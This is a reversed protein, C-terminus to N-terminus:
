KRRKKLLSSRSTNRIVELMSEHLKGNTALIEKGYLDVKRGSFDTVKGGAEEVLVIGASIDWPFLGLEWFGDFRGSALYALDLAAAGARRIAQAKVSFSGFLSLPLRPNERLDYPFGTALFAHGLKKERSVSIKRDNLYAGKKKGAWFIEDLMPNYIVGAVPINEYCLAISVAFWPFGHAYNTTGDLPDVFWRWPSDSESKTGEEAVLAHGPFRALIFNKILEESKKDMETVLNVEGKYEVTHSALLKERLIKGSALAAEKAVTIYSQYESDKLM